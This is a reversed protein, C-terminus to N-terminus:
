NSFHSYFRHMFLAGATVLSITFSLYIGVIGLGCPFGLLYCVPLGVIVYAISAILMTPKVHAIGRLAKAYTIQTADGFKYLIM